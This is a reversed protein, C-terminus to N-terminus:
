SEKMSKFRRCAAVPSFLVARAALSAVARVPSFLKVTVLPFLVAGDRSGLWFGPRSGGRGAWWGKLGVRTAGPPKGGGVRGKGGNRM